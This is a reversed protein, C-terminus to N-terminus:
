SSKLLALIKNKIFFILHKFNKFKENGKSISHRSIDSKTKVFAFLIFILSLGLGLMIYNWENFTIDFFTADKFLGSLIIGTAGAVIITLNKTDELIKFNQTEISHNLKQEYSDIALHHCHDMLSLNSEVLTIHKSIQLNEYFKQMIKRYESNFFMLDVDKVEILSQQINNFEKFWILNRKQIKLIENYYATENENESSNILDEIDKRIIEYQEPLIYIWKQCIYWLTHALDFLYLVDYVFKTIGEHDDNLLVVTAWDGNVIHNNQYTVTSELILKRVIKESPIQSESTGTLLTFLKSCDTNKSDFSEKICKIFQSSVGKPIVFLIRYSEFYYYKSCTIDQIDHSTESKIFISRISEVIDYIQLESSYDDRENEIILNLWKNIFKENGEIAKLTKLYITYGKRREENFLDYFAKIESIAINFLDVSLIISIVGQGPYIRIIQTFDYKKGGLIIKIEQDSKKDNLIISPNRISLYSRNFHKWDPQDIDIKPYSDKIKERFKLLDEKNEIEIKTKLDFKFTFFLKINSIKESCNEKDDAM